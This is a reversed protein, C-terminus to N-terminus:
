ASDGNRRQWFPADGFRCESAYLSRQASLHAAIGQLFSQEYRAALAPQGLALGAVADAAQLGSWLATALGNAALPDLASAADGARLIRREVIRTATVTSAPAFELTQQTLDIDLSAVRQSVAITSEAMQAWLRPDRRLGSALLDSDTFFGLLLREGPLASMYWWGDAVAEVLTAAALEIDDALAIITYCAVLRDLRTLAGDSASVAARGSCDIVFDAEHRVGDALELTIGDPTRTLARVTGDVRSVGDAELTRAMGAELARRDLHWGSDAETHTDDRRLLGSGWVSYRGACALVASEDLLPLWDLAELFPRARFSLTEGRNQPQLDPAIVLPALGRRQLRRACAMGAMGGGVVVIRTM